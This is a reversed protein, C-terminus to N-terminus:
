ILEVYYKTNIYEFPHNDCKKSEDLINQINFNDFDSKSVITKYNCSNHYYINDKEKVINCNHADNIRKDRVNLNMIIIKDKFKYYENINEKYINKIKFLEKNKDDKYIIEENTKNIKLKSIVNIEVFKSVYNNLYLILYELTLGGSAQYTNYAKKLKYNKIQDNFTKKINEDNLDVKNTYDEKDITNIIKTINLKKKDINSSLILVINQSINYFDRYKKNKIFDDFNLSQIYKENFKLFIDYIKHVDIGTEGKLYRERLNVIEDIVEKKYKVDCNDKIINEEKKFEEFLEPFYDFIVMLDLFVTQFLCNDSNHLFSTKQYELEKKDKNKKDEDKKLEENIRPADDNFDKNKDEINTSIEFNDINNKKNKYCCYNYLLSNFFIFIKFM